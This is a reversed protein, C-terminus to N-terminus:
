KLRGTNVLHDIIESAVTSNGYRACELREEVDRKLADLDVKETPAPTEIMKLIQKHTKMEYGWRRKIRMWCQLGLQKILM